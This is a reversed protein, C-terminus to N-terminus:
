LAIITKLKTHNYLVFIQFAIAYPNCDAQNSEPKRLYLLPCNNFSVDIAKRNREPLKRAKTNLTGDIDSVILWDSFDRKEKPAKKRLEM